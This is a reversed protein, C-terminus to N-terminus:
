KEMVKAARAVKSKMGREAGRGGKAKAQALKRGSGKPNGLESKRSRNKESGKDAKDHDLHHVRWINAHEPLNYTQLPLLNSSPSELPEIHPNRTRKM